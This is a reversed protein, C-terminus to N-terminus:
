RAVGGVTQSSTQGSRSSRDNLLVAGITQASARPRRHRSSSRCRYDARQRATQPAAVFFPVYEVPPASETQQLIELTVGPCAATVRATSAAELNPVSREALPARM